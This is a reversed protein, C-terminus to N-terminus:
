TPAPRMGIPPRTTSKGAHADFTAEFRDFFAAGFRRKDIIATVEPM